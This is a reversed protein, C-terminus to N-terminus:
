ENVEDAKKEDESVYNCAGDPFVDWLTANCNPCRIEIDGKWEHDKYTGSAPDFVYTKYENELVEFLPDECSPCKPPIEKM